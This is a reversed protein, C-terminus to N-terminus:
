WRGHALPRLAVERRAFRRVAGGSAARVPRLRALVRRGDRGGVLLRRFGGPVRPPRLPLRSRRAPVSRAAPLLAAPLSEGGGLDPRLCPFHRTGRPAGLTRTRARARASRIPRGAGGRRGLPGRPPHLDAGLSRRRAARRPGGFAEARVKGGDRSDRDGGRLPPLDTPRGERGRVAWWVLSVAGAHVPEEAERPANRVGPLGRP